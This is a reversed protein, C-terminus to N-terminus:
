RSSFVRADIAALEQRSIGLSDARAQQDAIVQAGLGGTTGFQVFLRDAFSLTDAPPFSQEAAAEPTIPSIASAPNADELIKKICPNVNPVMLRFPSTLIKSLADAVNKIENQIASAVLSVGGAISKVLSTGVAGLKSFLGGSAADLGKIAVNILGTVGSSIASILATTAATFAGIIAAPVAVLLNTFANLGTTIAGLTGNYIGQISGIFGGLKNCRDPSGEEEPKFVENIAGLIKTPANLVTNAHGTMSTLMSPIGGMQDLGGMSATIQAIQEPSLDAENAVAVAQASQDALASPPTSPTTSAASLSTGGIGGTYANSVQAQVAANPDGYNPATESRIARNTVYNFVVYKPVEEENTDSM